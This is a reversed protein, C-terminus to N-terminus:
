AVPQLSSIQSGPSAGPEEPTEPEVISEDDTGCGLCLTLIAALAILLQIKNVGDRIVM